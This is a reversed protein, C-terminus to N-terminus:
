PIHCDWLCLLKDYFSTSVCRLEASGLRICASGYNMSKHETFKVLVQSKWETGDQTALRVIKCGAHMCSALLTISTTSGTSVSEIVELRWVGGDLNQNLIETVQPIGYTEHLDKISFLRLTDDYSGTVVLRGGNSHLYPLPLIATVGADHKRTLTATPFPTLSTSDESELSLSNYRMQSDDGGCYISVATVAHSELPAFAISWAELTNGIDIDVYRAIKWEADLFLLRAIGTSTTVGLVNSRSPYWSCQLFLIHSGDMDDCRSNALTQLPAQPNQEPNLKFIALDGESSVAALINACEKVSDHFRLDLIAAPQM